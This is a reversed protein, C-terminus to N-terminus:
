PLRDGDVAQGLRRVVHRTRAPPPAAGLDVVSTRPEQYRIGAAGLLTPVVDAHMAPVRAHDRLRRWREPQRQRWSGNAHIWLPVRTDWRTPETLAHQFLGREDDLLNEGHDPTAILFVEGGRAELLGALADLFLTSEHVANDYSALWLDRTAATPLKGRAACDLALLRPGAASLRECYDFHAGYGQIVLVLRDPARALLERLPPLLTERDSGRRGVFHAEDADPWAISREQVSVWATHFGAESFARLFTADRSVRTVGGPLDRSVLLPVSTHTSSSGSLVDCYVLWGDPPAAWGARGGCARLRDARVSEDIVLVYTERAPGPQARRAGWSATRDRPDVMAYPLTTAILDPRETAQAIGLTILNLPWARMAAAPRWHVIAALVALLLVGVLWRLPRAPAGVPRLWGACAISALVLASAAMAALYPRLASTAEQVAPSFLMLEFLDAQRWLDAGVAIVGFLALPYTLPLFWRPGVLAALAGLACVSATYVALPDVDWSNSPAYVTAAPALLV